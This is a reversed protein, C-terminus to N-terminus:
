FGLKRKVFTYLPIKDAYITARCIMGPQLFKDPNLIHATVLFFQDRERVMVEDDIDTIVAKYIRDTKNIDLEVSDSINVYAIEFVKVPIKVIFDSQDKIKILDISDLYYNITGAFPAEIMYKDKKSRLNEIQMELSHVQTRFVNVLEPKEGTSVTLLSKEALQQNIIALDYANKYQEYELQSILDKKVMVDARQLQERTFGVNNTAIKLRNNYEKIISTKQGTLKDQLNAQAIALQSELAAINENVIDSNIVAVTDGKNVFKEFESLEIKAVDGRDFIYDTKSLAFNRNNDIIM